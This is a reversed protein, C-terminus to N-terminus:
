LHPISKKPNLIKLTSERLMMRNDCAWLYHLNYTCGGKKESGAKGRATQWGYMYLELSQSYCANVSRVTELLYVPNHSYHFESFTGLIFQFHFIVWLKIVLFWIPIIFYKSLCYTSVLLLGFPVRLHIGGCLKLVYWHQTSVGLLNSESM